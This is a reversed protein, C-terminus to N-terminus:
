LIMVSVWFTAEPKLVKTKRPKIKQIKYKQDRVSKNKGLGGGDTNKLGAKGHLM